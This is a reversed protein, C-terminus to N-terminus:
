VPLVHSNLPHYNDGPGFLNTPMVSFWDRGYQKRISNVMELGAIKALAYPQNTPELEGTLLHEEKM